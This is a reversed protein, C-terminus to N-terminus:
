VLEEGLLPLQQRQQGLLPGGEDVVGDGLAQVGGRGAALRAHGPQALHGRM